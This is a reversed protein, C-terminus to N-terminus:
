FTRVDAEGPRLEKSAVEGGIPAEPHSLNPMANHIVAAEAALREVHEETKEKMERLRRGEDKRGGRETDDKARRIEKCVQNALRSLEELEAQLKRRQSESDVFRGVDAKVGRRDCNEQVLQANELIFRKDLM